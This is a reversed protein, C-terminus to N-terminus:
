KALLRLSGLGVQTAENKDMLKSSIFLNHFKGDKIPEFQFKLLVFNFKGNTSAAPTLGATGLLKGAPADLRLEFEYGYQVPTQYGAALEASFVNTLDISDISVWGEGKPPIMYVTGNFGVSEFDKRRNADSFLIKSNHLVVTKKGTLPKIGPGGQNAYAATLYLSGKEKEPKGLTPQLSGESPLSKRSEPEQGLSLVWQVIQRIDNEPLAPHAAMATEGWVGGGGNKIKNVLYGPAKSDKKYKDAVQNFSPGVSKEALQHCSKCDNSLMLNKGSELLTPQLHGIPVAAKDADEIYDAM